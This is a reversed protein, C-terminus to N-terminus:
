TSCATRSSGTRSACSRRPWRSSRARASTSARPLGTPRRCASSSTARTRRSRAAKTVKTFYSRNVLVRPLTDSNLEVIWSGDAAPRVLVDPVVHQVEIRGYRLGPKPDLRKIEGIMDALEDMEVGVAQRLAGLNHGALLHLNDLLAAICPDYRNRDKLQIALCEALSRAFVGPPDFTQLTALVDGVFRRPRASGPPSSTSTPRSIAPRTSSISSIAASSASSMAKWGLRSSSELHGKLTVRERRVVGSQSGRRRLQRQAPARLGVSGGLDSTLEASSADPFVNEIETDFTGTPDANANALDLWSEASAM